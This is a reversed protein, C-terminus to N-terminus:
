VWTEIRKKAAIPKADIAYKMSFRDILARSAKITLEIAHIVYPNFIYLEPIATGSITDATATAM